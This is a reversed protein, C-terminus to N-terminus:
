RGLMVLTVVTVVALAVAGLKAYEKPSYGAASYALLNNPHSFPTLVPTSTGMAVALVAQLPHASSIALPGVLIAAAVYGVLNSLVVSLAFLALPSSLSSPLMSSLGSSVLAQGMTLYTGVFILTPLEIFTHARRLVQPSMLLAVLAGAMFAMAVNVGALSAGVAVALGLFASRALSRDLGKLRSGLPVLRFAQAAAAVAEEEGEVLLVDGPRVVHRSLGRFRQTTAIGVVKVDRLRANIEYVTLGSAMSDPTALLEYFPGKTLKTEIDKSSLLVPLSDVAVRVPIVEGERLRRRRALPGLVARVGLAEELERVTKGALGSGEPIRVEIIAEVRSLAELSTKVEGKPVRLLLPAALAVVATAALAEILGVRLPALIPLQARFHQIWLSELVVNSSSGIMTYRGGLISAYALPLLYRYAPRRLRQALSYIAPMMTLMIAVDSVFGSVLTALTLLALLVVLEGGPASALRHGVLDMIGSDALIGALIMSSALVVVAPSALDNLLQGPTVSGIAVLTLATAVGVLDHRVRRYLLFAISVALIVLVLYVRM